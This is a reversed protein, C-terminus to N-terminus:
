WRKISSCDGGILSADGKREDAGNGTNIKNLIAEPKESHRRAHSDGGWEVHLFHNVSKFEKESVEKYETYRVVIGDLGFPLLIYM